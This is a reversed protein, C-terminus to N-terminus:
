PLTLELTLTVTRGPTPHGAIFEARVDTLDRMEARATLHTGLRREVSLDLVSIPPRPNTGAANPYREGIRRWRLDAVWPGPRWVASAAYTARPRYQVQAGDPRDYTVAALAASAEVRVPHAPRLSVTLEGGRRRVDFNRPSWIFRFDPAWVVMDDVRGYFGRVAFAGLGGALEHRLGAEVEWPV